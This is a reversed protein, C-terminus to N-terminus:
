RLDCVFARIDDILLEPAQLAAFHGGHDYETWRVLNHQREAISQNTGDGPFVAVATPVPSRGKPAWEQMTSEKYLRASSGSTATLWYLTVNTLILDRDIVTQLTRAPDYDVFWELNWALVGTPSDTLAYALTQPRTSQIQAYGSREQWDGDDAGPAGDSGSDAGWDDETGGHRPTLRPRDPAGGAAGPGPRPGQRAPRAPGGPRHGARRHQTQGHDSTLQLGDFWASWRSDLVGKVRIQYHVPAPDHM